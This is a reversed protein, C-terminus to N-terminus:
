TGLLAKELREPRRFPGVVAGRLGGNSPDLMTAALRSVDATSVSEIGALVKAPELITGILVEQQGYFAGLAGTNELQVRLRGSTFEKAKALEAGGVGDAALKELEVVAARIAAPARAPDCGLGICLAGSDRLKVTYSSVDYALARRERLELFLRSSMGEGLICNLVDVAYRDPSLYAPARVGLLIAAQETSRGVVRLSPGDPLTAAIPPSEPSGEGGWGGLRRALRSTVADPDIAGAVSVVLSRPVYHAILHGRCVNSDFSLVTAETGAVDRGLPHDPWMVEDFLTQVHDQPSDQYMRIEEVIVLREKAVEDADLVPKVLIDALVDIAIDLKPAPVKAWFVTEERDTSANLVGGVSEVAESVARATAYREGGKFVMHEIFHALGSNAETEWRSGFGFMFSVSASARELMPATVVRVGNDLQQLRHGM